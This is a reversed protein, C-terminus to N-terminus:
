VIDHKMIKVLLLALKATRPGLEKSFLLCLLGLIDFDADNDGFPNTYIKHKVYMTEFWQHFSTYVTGKHLQLNNTIQRQTHVIYLQYQSFTYIFWQKYKNQACLVAKNGVPYHEKQIILEPELTM